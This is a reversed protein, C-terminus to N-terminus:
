KLPAADQPLGGGPGQRAALAAQARDRSQRADELAPLLMRVADANAVARGPDGQAEFAAAHVRYSDITKQVLRIAEDYDAIAHAYDEKVEWALGRIFWGGPTEPEM